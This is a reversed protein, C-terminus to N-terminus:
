KDPKECCPFVIFKTLPIFAIIPSFPEPFVVKSSNILPFTLTEYIFYIPSFSSSAILSTSGIFTFYIFCPCIILFNLSLDKNEDSSSFLKLSNFLSCNM